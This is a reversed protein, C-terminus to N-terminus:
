LYIIFVTYISTKILTGFSNQECLANWAYMFFVDLPKVGGSKIPTDTGLKLSWAHTIPTDINNRNRVIKRASEPLIRVIHYINNEQTNVEMITIRVQLTLKSTKGTLSQWIQCTTWIPKDICLMFSMMHYRRSVTVIYIDDIGDLCLKCSTLKSIYVMLPFFLYLVIRQQWYHCSLRFRSIYSYLYHYLTISWLVM